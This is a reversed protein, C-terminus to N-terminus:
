INSMFVNLWFVAEPKAWSIGIRGTLNVDKGTLGYDEEKLYSRHNSAILFVVLSVLYPSDNGLHLVSKICLAYM